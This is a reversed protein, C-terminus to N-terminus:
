SGSTGFWQRYWQAMQEIFARDFDPASKLAELSTGMGPM